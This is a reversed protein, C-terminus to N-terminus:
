LSDLNQKMKQDGEPRGAHSMLIGSALVPLLLKGLFLVHAFGESPSTPKGQGVVRMVTNPSEAHSLFACRM